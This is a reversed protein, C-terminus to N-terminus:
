PGDAREDAAASKKGMISRLYPESRLACQTFFMIGALVAWVQMMKRMWAARKTMM